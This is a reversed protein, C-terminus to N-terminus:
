TNLFLREHVWVLGDERTGILERQTFEKMVRSVMERSAGIMKAVDQRSVKAHTVRLGDPTPASLEFLADAVRGYVDELALTEIKHAARRQRRALSRLLENVVGPCAPLCGTFVQNDLTLADTQTEALVSALNPQDDFLPLEGTFEGALLRDVIVERQQKDTMVVRARGNLLIVLQPSMSGQHVLCEGKRFRRKRVANAIVALHPEELTAFLPVRLILDENSLIAM